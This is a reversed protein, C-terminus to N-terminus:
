KQKLALSVLTGLLALGLVVVGIITMSSKARENALEQLQTARLTNIEALKEEYQFKTLNGENLIRQLETNYSSEIQKGKNSLFNFGLSSAFNILSTGAGGSGFFSNIFNSSGTQTVTGIVGVGKGTNKTSQYYSSYIDLEDM